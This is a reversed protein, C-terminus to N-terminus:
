KRTTAEMGAIMAALGDSQTRGDGGSYNNLMISFVLNEGAKNTMYGSLSNVYRITGTKAKLNNEAPTGKFRSRLTGDVGAIPLSDIFTSAYRHKRMYKLLAVSAAPKLLCGRSLGSGEELLVDGSDIGAEGLFKKMEALGLDDSNMRKTEQTRVKEAVQLLLLHAYLNQSPKMMNKVIEAMPKSEIYAIETLRGYNLPDTERTLWNATRIKGSVKVGRKKLADRLITVFWRPADHVAVSEELASDGMPLTGSIYVVNEDIPRYVQVSRKGNTAVTETRNSFILYPYPPKATIKVPAGIADGPHFELDVVNEQLTLASVEAGYYYQLDDWSWGTGFRPGRFYSEDGILDGKISKVGANILADCLQDIAKQYDGSNFRHSFSPDGRGYVIVDGKVTGYRSVPSTAYFSTRIKFDPGLRDLALAGSYIKANSAPKLLKTSNHEFVLKGTDLSEVKVGLLAAAFRPHSVFSTLKQQFDSLSETQKAPKQAWCTLSTTVFLSLLVLYQTRKM